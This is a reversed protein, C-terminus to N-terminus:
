YYGAVVTRTTIGVTAAVEDLSPNRDHHALMERMVVLIADRM